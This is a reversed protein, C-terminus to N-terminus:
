CRYLIGEDSLDIRGLAYLCDLADILKM